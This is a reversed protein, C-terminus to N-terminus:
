KPYVELAGLELHSTHGEISFRGSKTLALTVEVPVGPVLRATRNYGHVHVEDPQDSTFRLTVRDGVSARIIKAGRVVENRVIRFEVSAAAEGSPPRSPPPDPLASGGACPASSLALLSAVGCGGVFKSWPVVM